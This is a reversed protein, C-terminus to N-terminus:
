GREEAAFLALRIERAQTFHRQAIAAARDADRETIAALLEAHAHKSQEWRGPAVLTTQPYRGLHLNLRELLDILSENHSAQWVGRNFAANAEVLAAPDEVSVTNGRELAWELRRLDHDTRREAAVAAVRGELVIRTTYIDLIEEPSRRRVTLSSGEWHILGDQELRRLAERVPTRSVGCWQALQVERLAQGPKFEGQLVAQKLMEYASPKPGAGTGEGGRSSRAAQRAM